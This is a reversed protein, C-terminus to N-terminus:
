HAGGQEPWLAAHQEVDALGTSPLMLVFVLGIAADAALATPRSMPTLAM